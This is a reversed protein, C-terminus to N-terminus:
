GDRLSALLQDMEVKDVREDFLRWLEEASPTYQTVDVMDIDSMADNQDNQIDILTSALCLFKYYGNVGKALTCLMEDNSILIAAQYTEQNKYGNM